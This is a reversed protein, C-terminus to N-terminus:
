KSKSRIIKKELGTVPPRRLDGSASSASRRAGRTSKTAFMEFIWPVIFNTTEISPLIFNM